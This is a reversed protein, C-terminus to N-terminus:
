CPPPDIGKVKVTVEFADQSKMEEEGEFDVLLEDSALVTPLENLPLM